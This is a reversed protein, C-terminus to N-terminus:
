AALHLRAEVVNWPVEISGDALQDILGLHLLRTVDEKVNADDQGLRKALSPVSMPGESRLAKLLRWRAPTLTKLLLELSEFCLRRETEVDEGAEVQKWVRIFRDAAAWENEVDIHLTKKIM